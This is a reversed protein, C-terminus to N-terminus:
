RKEIQEKTGRQKGERRRDTLRHTMMLYYKTISKYITVRNMKYMNVCKNRPKHTIERNENSIAKKLCDKQIGMNRM